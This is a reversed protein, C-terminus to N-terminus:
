EMLKKIYHIVSWTEKEDIDEKFSPMDEKGTQIKWFVDGESHMKLRMKLNPPDTEIGVEEKTKGEANEGHCDFCFQIYIDEGSDIVDQTGTLPSIKIADEEPAKWGHALVIGNMFVIFSFITVVSYSIISIRILIGKFLLM